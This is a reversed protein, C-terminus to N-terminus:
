LFHTKRLDQYKKYGAAVIGAVIFLIVFFPTKWSSSKAATEKVTEELQTEVQDRIANVTTHVREVVKGNAWAELEDIRKEDEVGQQKLKQITNETSEKLATFQYEFDELLQSYKRKVLKMKDDNNGKSLTAELNKDVADRQKEDAQAALSDIVDGRQALTWQYYDGPATKLAASALKERQLHQKVRRVGELDDLGRELAALREQAAALRATVEDITTM